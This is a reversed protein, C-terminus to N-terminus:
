IPALPWYVEYPFGSQKPIDRLAQRYNIWEVPVLTSTEYAKIVIWDSDKLKQDRTARVSNALIQTREDIEKQPMSVIDWSQVWKDGQKIPKGPMAKQNAGVSPPAIVGVMVYGEPMSNDSLVEPFSTNPFLVTISPIPWEVVKDNEIKAFM